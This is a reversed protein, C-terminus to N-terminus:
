SNQSGYLYEYGKKTMYKSVDVSAKPRSSKVLGALERLPRPRLTKRSKQLIILDGWRVFEVQDGDALSFEESLSRPIHLYPQDSVKVTIM